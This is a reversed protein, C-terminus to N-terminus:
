CGNIAAVIADRADNNRPDVSMALRDHLIGIVHETGDELTVIFTPPKILKANSGARASRTVGLPRVDGIATTLWSAGKGLQERAGVAGLVWGFVKSVDRVDLPSFIVRQNTVIVNGGVSRFTGPDWSGVATAIQVEGDLLAVPIPERGSGRLLNQAAEAPFDAM